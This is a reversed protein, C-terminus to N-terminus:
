LFIYLLRGLAINFVAGEFFVRKFCPGERMIHTRRRSRKSSRRRTRRWACRTRCAARAPACRRWSKCRRLRRRRTPSGPAEHRKEHSQWAKGFTKSPNVSTKSPDELNKKVANELFKLPKRRSNAGLPQRSVQLQSEALEEAKELENKALLELVSMKWGPWERPEAVRFNLGFDIFEDSLGDNKEHKKVPKGQNGDTEM